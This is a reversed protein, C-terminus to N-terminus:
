EVTGREIRIVSHDNQRKNCILERHLVVHTLNVTGKPSGKGSELERGGGCVVRFKKGM